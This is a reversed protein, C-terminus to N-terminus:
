RRNRIDFLVLNDEPSIAPDYGPNNAPHRAFADAKRFREIHTAVEVHNIM